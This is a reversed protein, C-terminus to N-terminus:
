AQEYSFGQGIIVEIEESRCEVLSRLCAFTLEARNYLVLLVSIRPTDSHQLELRSGSVLFSEFWVRYQYAFFSKLNPINRDSIDSLKSGALAVRHSGKRLNRLRNAVKRLPYSWRWTPSQLILDLIWKQDALEKEKLALEQRLARLSEHQMRSAEPEM